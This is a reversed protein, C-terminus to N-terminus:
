KGAKLFQNLEELFSELEELTANEPNETPFDYGRNIAENKLELIQNIIETKM